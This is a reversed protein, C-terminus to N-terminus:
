LQGDCLPDLKDLVQPIADSGVRRAVRIVKRNSLRLTLFEAAAGRSVQLIGVLRNWEVLRQFADLERELSSATM